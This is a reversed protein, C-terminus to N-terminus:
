RVAVRESKNVQLDPALEETIRRLDHLKSVKFMRLVSDNLVSLNVM